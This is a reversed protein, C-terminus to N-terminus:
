STYREVRGTANVGFWYLAQAVTQKAQTCRQVVPQGSCGNRDAVGLGGGRMGGSATDDIARTASSRM